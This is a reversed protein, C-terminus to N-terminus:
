PLAECALGDGDRDLRHPDGSGADEFFQQAEAHSSFDSCDYDRNEYEKVVSEPTTGQNTSPSLLTNAGIIGAAGVGVAGLAIKAIKNM